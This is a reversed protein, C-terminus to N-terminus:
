PTKELDPSKDGQFRSLIQQTNTMAPRGNLKRKTNVQDTPLNWIISMCSAIDPPEPLTIKQQDVPSCTLIVRGNAKNNLRTALFRCGRLTGHAIRYVDFADAAQATFEFIFHLMNAADIAAVYGHWRFPMGKGCPECEPRECPVTHGGYFHTDCGLLNESTIAAILKGGPPTRKLPFAKGRPDSPIDTSFAVTM